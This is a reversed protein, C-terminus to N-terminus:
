RFSEFVMVAGLTMTITTSVVIGWAQPNSLDTDAGAWVVVASLILLAAGFTRLLWRDM